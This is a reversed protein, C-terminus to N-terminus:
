ITQVIKAFHESGHAVVHFEALKLWPVPSSYSVGHIKGDIPFEFELIGLLPDFTRGVNSLNDLVPLDTLFVVEDVAGADLLERPTLYPFM